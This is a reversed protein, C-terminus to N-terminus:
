ALTLAMSAAGYKLTSSCRSDIYEGMKNYLHHMKIRECRWCRMSALTTYALCRRTSSVSFRTSALPSLTASTVTVAGRPTHAFTKAPGELLDGQGGLVSTKVILQSRSPEIPPNILSGKFCNRSSADYVHIPSWLSETLSTLSEHLTM